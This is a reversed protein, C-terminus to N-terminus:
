KKSTSELQENIFDHAIQFVMRQGDTLDATSVGYYRDPRPSRVTSTPGAVVDSCEFMALVVSFNSADKAGKTIKKKWLSYHEDLMSPCIKALADGCAKFLDLHELEPLKGLESASGFAVEGEALLSACIIGSYGAADKARNIEDSTLAKVSLAVDEAGAVRYSIETHPRPRQSLTRFLVEPAIDDPPKM